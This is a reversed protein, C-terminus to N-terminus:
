AAQKFLLSSRVADTGGAAGVWDYRVELARLGPLIRALLALLAVDLVHADIALAGWDEDGSRPPGRPWPAGGRALGGGGGNDLGTSGGGRGRAGATNADAHTPGASGAIFPALLVRLEDLMRIRGALRLRLEPRGACAATLATLAPHM